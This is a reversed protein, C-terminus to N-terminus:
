RRTTVIIAGSDYGTGFRMTADTSNMFRLEQLDGARFARLGEIGASQRNGDVVVQATGAGRSRLWNPRLRQIIQYAELQPLEQIEELTILNAGGRRPGDAGGGGGGSACGALGFTLALAAILYRPTALSRM